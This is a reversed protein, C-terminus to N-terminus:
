LEEKAKLDKSFDAVFQKCELYELDDSMGDHDVHEDIGYELTITGDYVCEGEETAYEAKNYRCLSNGCLVRPM